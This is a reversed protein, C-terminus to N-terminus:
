SASAVPLPCSFARRPQAAADWRGQLRDSLAAASGHLRWDYVVSFALVRAVYDRTEKYPIAEIFFDPDLRSRAQMWRDVPAPGANYAAIALYPFGNYRDLMQRLYATGLTLNTEPQYLSDGGSWPLGIRRATLAGTGPLLQLLGRADASSRAKPMFASEARTQAAVWAPDLGNLKAQSRITEQHPLPFRLSYFRTDDPAVNMGFVARDFWGADIALQVAIRREDDSMVKLADGWERAAPGPRDLAFLELARVLAPQAAVRQRLAKDQQPEQACLAYGQKLRDAALWGHFSPSAAALQFLRRAAEAQGLRERLRAEFYQWRSDGRQMAGMKEIAALAATDDGRNIAERVRWEHLKDDYSGAPVANLRREAEPLYSAVTWLAVEYLVRGRQREDFGLREAVLPLLREVRDPDRKGLRALAASAIDRSRVTNPWTPPIAEGPAELYAAYSQALAADSPSLGKGIHRILGSQGQTAALDIRQWRLGEDLQGRAALAAFSADCLDPLPDGSLWLARADATWDESRDRGGQRRAELDACRLLADDSGQYARGFAPWDRRQLLEKLWAERLWRTAAPSGLRDLVAQVTAPQAQDLDARLASAELWPSLPHRAYRAADDASWQGREAADLASRLENRSAAASPQALAGAALVILISALPITRM